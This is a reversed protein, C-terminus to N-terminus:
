LHYLRKANDHLLKQQHEIPRNGVIQRCADTWQKLSAALTCVPWNGAFIVRDPGFADLCINMLPALDDLDWTHGALTEFFGSLKCVVRDRKALADIDRKFQEVTHQPKVNAPLTKRFAFPDGNGCHDLVFRTQPCADVLKVADALEAPRLCLDFTKGMEGLVQVGSIFASSLCFGRPTQDNHLIQRVGTIRRDDCYRAVYQRFGPEAPRGGIVAAAVLNNPDKTLELVDDAEAVFHTPATNVEMYVVKVYNLGAVAELYDKTVYDRTLPGGPRLWPLVIKKLDWLHQHTDIIPLDAM